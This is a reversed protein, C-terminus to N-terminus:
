SSSLLRALEDEDLRALRLLGAYLGELEGDGMGELGLGSPSSRPRSLWRLLVEADKASEVARRRLGIEIAEDSPAPDSPLDRRKARLAASRKGADRATESTFRRGEPPQRRTPTPAEDANAAANVAERAANDRKSGVTGPRSCGTAAAPTPDASGSLELGDRLSMDSRREDRLLETKLASVTRPEGNQARRQAEDAVLPNALRERETM